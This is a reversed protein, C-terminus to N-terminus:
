LGMGISFYLNTPGWKMAPSAGEEFFFSKGIAFDAPGIPTDLGLLIGFGHRLEAFKIQEPIEWTRGLDYRVSLHTDFLIRFPLTYRAELGVTFLQQGSFENERMGLFSSIGGLRFDEAHPMTRDGYGFQLRPVATVRTNEVPIYVRYSASVRSFSRTSGLKGQASTYSAEFYTGRTPYPYRDQTDIVTGLALSVVRQREEIEPASPVVRAITRLGQEEYRITGTLNGFREAYMGITAVGGSLIRRITSVIDRQFRAPPMGTVNDFVHFDRLDWYVSASLNLNTYFIRNTHYSIEFRRNEFGGAFLLALETGSGSVNVDRFQMGVQANREDDACVTFDLLRTPREQVRIVLRPPRENEEIDLSVLHFLNLGSINRLGTAAEHLRFIDGESFPFERLIVVPNTRTNGEVRIAGIRGEEIYLDVSRASTDVRVSDFRALAFGQERYVRLVNECLTRVTSATMPYGTCREAQETLKAPFSATGLLRVAALVPIGDENREGQEPSCSLRRTRTGREELRALIAEAKEWGARYGAAILSDVDTFDTSLRDGLPPEIVVDARSLQSENPKVMLVNLVQDLTGVPDNIQEPTRPPSTTNVAVIVDCVASDLVDVPINSSLGGDVLAMGQRLVPAFLVPVTASARLAEGLNGERIVLRRGTYLDTAVARFATGLEDFSPGHYVGRLVLDNLLDTLRQGNSVSLPLVPQIGDLRVTFVTRDAEPKRDVLLNARENEDTLKFLRDWDVDKAIRELDACTYGAAYLGGIVSGISSGAIISPSLGAEELAKLVGIQALGRAGGGSLVLGIRPHAYDPLMSSFFPRVPKWVISDAWVIKGSDRALRRANHPANEPSFAPSLSLLCVLCTLFM